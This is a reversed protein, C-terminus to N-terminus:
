EIQVSDIQPLVRDFKACGLEALNLGSTTNFKDLIRIADVRQDICISRGSMDGMCDLRAVNLDRSIERDGRLAVEIWCSQRALGFAGGIILIDRDAVDNALTLIPFLSVELIVAWPSVIWRDVATLVLLCKMSELSPPKHKGM